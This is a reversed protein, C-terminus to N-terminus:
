LIYIYIYIDLLILIQQYVFHNGVASFQYTRLFTMLFGFGVFIMVNIDQWLPYRSSELDTTEYYGAISHFIICFVELLVILVALKKQELISSADGGKTM